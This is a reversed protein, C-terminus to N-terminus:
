KLVISEGDFDSPIGVDLIELITPTIDYIKPRKNKCEYGWVYILAGHYTHM